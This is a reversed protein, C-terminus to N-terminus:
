IFQDTSLLIFFNGDTFKGQFCPRLKAKECKGFFGNVFDVLKLVTADKELFVLKIYCKM